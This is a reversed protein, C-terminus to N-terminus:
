YLQKDKNKNRSLYPPNTVIMNCGQYSPSWISDNVITAENQPEIDYAKVDEAGNNYCWEVLDGGGAFPECVTAGRVRHELGELLAVANTTFYQGQRQKDDQTTHRKM